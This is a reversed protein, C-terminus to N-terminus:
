APARSVAEDRVGRLVERGGGNQRRL